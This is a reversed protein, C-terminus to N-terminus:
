GGNGGAPQRIHELLSLLQRAEAGTLVVNQECGPAAICGIPLGLEFIMKCALGILNVKRRSLVSPHIGMEVALPKNGRVIAERHFFSELAEPKCTLRVSNSTTAASEM